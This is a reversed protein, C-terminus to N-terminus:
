PPAHIGTDLPLVDPHADFQWVPSRVRLCLYLVRGVVQDIALFMSPKRHERPVCSARVTAPFIVRPDLYETPMSPNM